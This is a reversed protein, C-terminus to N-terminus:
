LGAGGQGEWRSAEAAWNPAQGARLGVGRGRRAGRLPHAPGLPPPLPGLWPLRSSSPALRSAANLRAACRSPLVLGSGAAPSRLALLAARRGPGPGMGAAGGSRGQARADRGRGKGAPM